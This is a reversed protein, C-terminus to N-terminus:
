GNSRGALTTISFPRAVPTSISRPPRISTTFGVAFHDDEAEENLEGFSSISEPMPGAACRLSIPNVHLDVSGADGPVQLVWM